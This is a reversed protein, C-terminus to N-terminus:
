CLITASLSESLRAYVSCPLQYLAYVSYPLQYLSLCNRMCLTHYSIFVRVIECVCLITASFVRVIEFVCLITASLSESLRTYVSYPLQYLSSCDRMCLTHYSIYVRCDLICLTHYSIFVRFIECVCLIRPCDCVCPITASLSESLRAYMSYQSLHVHRM